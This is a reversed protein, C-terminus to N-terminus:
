EEKVPFICTVVTGCAAYRRVDLTGGIMGARYKMIHLGMGQSSAAGEVIGRGDDRITLTGRGQEAALQITINQAAGHKIANNVAEQAIRYLHTGMSDDGILVPRECQFRCSVGFLDEVEAAWLQLASMLGQSDSVVPLLGRALERSKHIAENVLKVIKAAEEAEARNKEVLKAEHVKAMFAIGTLHQGLGDHLDQGIRRQERASIDLIAKELQKRETIDIGTAIIYNSTDGSGPLLKSTWAILRQHGHRTMWCSQYEQPLLGTRMVEFTQRFRQAEEGALFLDWLCRGQVEKMSYGTTVECAPNFRLIRGETDLVVVLAGVTDLIASVFNREEQLEEEIRKLDSIDFAVGHIFWPRGDDRRMMKADCHFWIVRGDRAIVRYASRLPKGSLFMEAAELSWRQKDDPHIHQYWRVPDELWEERSYGLVAEIQPSVYAESIGRDLYAMFVVAPIQELLARYKAELNPARGDGDVSFEKLVRGRGTAPDSFISALGLLVSEAEALDPLGEGAAKCPEANRPEPGSSRNRRGQRTQVLSSM